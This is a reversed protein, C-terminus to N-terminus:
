AAPVRFMATAVLSCETRTQASLEQPSAAGNEDPGQFRHMRGAIWLRDPALLGVAGPQANLV